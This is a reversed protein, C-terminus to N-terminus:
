RGVPSARDPGEPDPGKKARSELRCPVIVRLIITESAPTWGPKDRNTTM